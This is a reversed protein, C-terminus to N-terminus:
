RGVKAPAASRPRQPILGPLQSLRSWNTLCKVCLLMSVRRYLTLKEVLIKFLKLVGHTQQLTLSCPLLGDGELAKETHKLSKDDTRRSVIGTCAGSAVGRSLISVRRSKRASM